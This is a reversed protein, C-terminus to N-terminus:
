QQYNELITIFYFRSVVLVRAASGRTGVSSADSTELRELFVGIFIFHRLGGDYLHQQCVGRCDQQLHSVAGLLVRLPLSSLWGRRSRRRGPVLRFSLPLRGSCLRHRM